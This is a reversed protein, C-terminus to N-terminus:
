LENKIFDLFELLYSRCNRYMAKEIENGKVHYKNFRTMGPRVESFANRWENLTLSNVIRYLDSLTYKRRSPLIKCFTEFCRGYKAGRNKLLRFLRFLDRLKTKTFEQV